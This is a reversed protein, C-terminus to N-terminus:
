MSEGRRMAECIMEVRRTLGSLHETLARDRGGQASIQAEIRTLASATLAMQAHIAVLDERSASRSVRQELDRVGGDLTSIRAELKERTREIQGVIEGRQRMLRLLAAIIGGGRALWLGTALDIAKLRDLM